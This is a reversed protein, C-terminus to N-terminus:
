EYNYIYNNYYHPKLVFVFANVEVREAFAQYQVLKMFMHNTHEFDHNILACYAGM